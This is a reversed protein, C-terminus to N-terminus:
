AMTIMDHAGISYHMLSNLRRRDYEVIDSVYLIVLMSFDVLVVYLLMISMMSMRSSAHGSHTLCFFLKPKKGRCLHM